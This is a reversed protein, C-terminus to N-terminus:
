DVIRIQFEQDMRQIFAKWDTGCVKVFDTGNVLTLATGVCWFRFNDKAAEISKLAHPWCVFRRGSKPNTHLHIPLGIPLVTNTLWPTEVLEMEYHDGKPITRSFNIYFEHELLLDEPKTSHHAVCTFVIPGKPTSVTVEFNM